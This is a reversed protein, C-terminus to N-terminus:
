FQYFITASFQSLSEAVAASKDLTFARNVFQGGLYFQHFLEYYAGVRLTTFGPAAGSFVNTTFSQTVSSSGSAGVGLSFDASLILSSFPIYEVGAMLHLGKIAIKDISDGLVPDIETASSNILTYGAGIKPILKMTRTLYLPYQGKLTATLGSAKTTTTKDLASPLAGAQSTQTAGPALFGDLEIGLYNWRVDATAGFYLSRGQQNLVVPTSTLGGLVGLRFMWDSELQYHKQGRLEHRNSRQATLSALRRQRRRRMSRERYRRNTKRKRRVRKKSRRRVQPAENNDTWYNEAHAEIPFGVLAILFFVALIISFIRTM